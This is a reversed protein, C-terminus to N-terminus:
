DKRSCFGKRGCNPCKAVRSGNFHITIYIQYWKPKFEEGCKPCVYTGLIIYAYLVVFIVTIFIAIFYWPVDVTEGFWNAQCSTFILVLASLISILSIKKM